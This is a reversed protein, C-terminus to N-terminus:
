AHLRQLARLRDEISMPPPAMGPPPTSPEKPASAEGPEGLLVAQYSIMLEAPLSSFLGSWAGSSRVSTQHLGAVLDYHPGADPRLPREWLLQRTSPMTVVKRYNALVVHLSPGEVFWGGTTLETMGYSNPRSMGFVVM